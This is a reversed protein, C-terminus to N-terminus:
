KKDFDFKVKLLCLNDEVEIKYLINNEYDKWELYGIKVLDNNLLKVWANTESSPEIILWQHCILTGDDAEFFYIAKIQTYNGSQETTYEKEYTIYKTGDDAEGVEYNRGYEAIIDERSQGIQALISTFSLFLFAFTSIVKLYM